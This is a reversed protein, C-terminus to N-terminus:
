TVTPQQTQKLGQANTFVNNATRVHDDVGDFSLGGGIQGTIWQAGYVSGNNSGASDYATTGGGEDFKWYAIPGFYEPEVFCPDADINGVGPWGGQVDSYSVTAVSSWDEYIQPASQATNDWLICNTLTPDASNNCMGGGYAAYNGSLTCNTLAPDSRMNYMGGGADEASNAAFMCNTLVPSSHESNYMGGGRWGSNFSFTCNTVAPSSRWNRIGGGDTEASNGSFTCNTLTPSSERNEMGGGGYTYASNRSFTCNTMTPSSSGSNFMGGGLVTASNETFSCNTLTPSGGFNHMGGGYVASNWSFTCNTITPSGGDNYMGGSRNYPNSGNANGSTITFGDLVTNADTGSGTVVHYSNESNDAFDPGDDGNLDGSLISEYADIDRANPDPEGFGAYGGKITVGNILQFTATRDGPIVESGEDDNSDTPAATPPLPPGPPAPKYIGQAVRIEDGRFAVGLGDQLDNFADAWSSGDNAGIADADIYYITAQYPIFYVDTQRVGTNDGWGDDEHRIMLDHTGAAVEIATHIGMVRHPDGVQNYEIGRGDLYVSHYGGGTGHQVLDLLLMGGDNADFTTSELNSEFRESTLSVLLEAGARILPRPIYRISIRNIGINQTGRRSAYSVDYNCPGWGALVPLAYLSYARGQTIRVRPWTYPNYLPDNTTGYFLGDNYHLGTTLNRFTIEGDASGDPNDMQILLRGDLPAQFTFSGIHYEAEAASFSDSLLIANAEAAQWSLVVMVLIVVAILKSGRCEKM